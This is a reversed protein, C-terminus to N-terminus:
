IVFVGIANELDQMILQLEQMSNNLEKALDLQSHATNNVTSSSAATEQYVASINEVAGLVTVRDDDMNKINNIIKNLYELLQNLSLDINDFADKTIDVSEVQAIVESEADHSSAVVLKTNEDIDVVADQIKKAEKMSDEALKRIEDAVVSFGKGAEGARAAEISANLSLLNTQKAIGNIINAFEAISASRRRLINIDEILKKMIIGTKKSQETLNEMMNMGTQIYLQTNDALKQIDNIDGNLMKMKNSLEDMKCYCVQSEQAQHSIGQDIQEIAYTINDSAKVLKESAREVNDISAAVSKSIDFVKSVLNRTNETMNKASKALVSVENRSKINMDVTLNGKAVEALKQSIIKISKEIGTTILVGLLGSLFIASIVLLFTTTRIKNASEMVSSKPIAVCVSYSEDKSHHLMFLYEQNNHTVYNSYSGNLDKIDSRYWPQAMFTFRDSAASVERGDATIFSSFVGEAFNVAGLIETIKERDLDIVIYGMQSSLQRIYSCAYSQSSNLMSADLTAHTGVWGMKGGASVNINKLDINEFENYFDSIKRGLTSLVEGDSPIIYINKIYDGSHKVTSLTSTIAVKKDQLISPNDNYQGSVYARIDTNMALEVMKSDITDKIFDIHETIMGLTNSTSLEYSMRLGESANKYSRIGVITMFIIPLAFGILLQFKISEFFIPTKKSNVPPMESNNVQADNGAKKFVKFFTGYGFKRNKM